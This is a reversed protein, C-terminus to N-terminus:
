FFYFVILAVFSLFIHTTHSYTKVAPLQHHQRKRPQYSLTAESEEEDGSGDDDDDGGGSGPYAAKRPGYLSRSYNTVGLKLNGALWVLKEHEQITSQLEFFSPNTVPFFTLCCSSFFFLPFSSSVASTNLPFHYGIVNPNRPM